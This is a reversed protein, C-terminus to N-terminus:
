ELEYSADGLDTSARLKALRREFATGIAATVCRDLAEDLTPLRVPSRAAERLQLNLAAQTKPGWAGDADLGSVSAQFERVTSFGLARIAEIGRAESDVPGVNAAIWVSGGAPGMHVSRDYVMALARESVLGLRRAITLIPDFYDTIAIENQAAQFREHRGARRFRDLWPDEWLNAGDVPRTRDDLQKANTVALLEAAAKAGGFTESFTGPDRQQCAALVRGLSGYRQAFQIIGWSLGVHVKQYFRRNKPDNFELDPNIASYGDGASEALAVVRMIRVKDGITLPAPAAMGEDFDDAPEDDDEEEPEWAADRGIADESELADFPSGYRPRDPRGYADPDATRRAFDVADEYEESDLDDDERLVIPRPSDDEDNDKDHDYDYDTADGFSHARRSGYGDPDDDDDREHDDERSWLSPDFGDDYAASAVAAPPEQIADGGWVLATADPSGYEATSRPLGLRGRDITRGTFDPSLWICSEPHDPHRFRADEGNPGRYTALAYYLREAGAFRQLQEPPLMYTTEASASRLLGRCRSTYFNSPTRRGRYERQFLRPDTTCAVEFWRQEPVRVIFSAVPCRESIQTRSPVILEM